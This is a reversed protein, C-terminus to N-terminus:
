EMQVILSNFVKDDEYVFSIESNIARKQPNQKRILPASQMWLRTFTDYLNDDHSTMRALRQRFRRLLKHLSELPGESWQGLGMNGNLRIIAASHGLFKHLTESLEMWPFEDLLQVYLEKCYSEFFEVHILEKSNILRLIVNFKLLINRM